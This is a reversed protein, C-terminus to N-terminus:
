KYVIGTFFDENKESDKFIRLVFDLFISFEFDREDNETLDAGHGISERSRVCTRHISCQPDRIARSIPPIQTIAWEVYSKPHDQFARIICVCVAAM